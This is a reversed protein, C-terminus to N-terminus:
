ESDESSDEDEQGDQSDDEEQQNDDNDDDEQANQSDDEEQQDDDDADEESDDESDDQRNSDDDKAGVVSNGNLMLLSGILKNSKDIANIRATNLAVNEFIGMKQLVLDPEKAEEAIKFAAEIIEDEDSKGSKCSTELSSIEKQLDEAKKVDPKVSVSVNATTMLTNSLNKTANLYDLGLQKINGNVSDCVSDAFLNVLGLITILFFRM